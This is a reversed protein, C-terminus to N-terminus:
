ITANTLSTNSSVNLSYTASLLQYASTPNISSTANLTSLSTNSISVSDASAIGLLAFVLLFGLLAKQTRM